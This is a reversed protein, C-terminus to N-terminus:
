SSATSIGHGTVKGKGYVEVYERRLEEMSETGLTICFGLAELNFFQDACKECMWWSALPKEDGYIRYDVSGEEPHMVRSFHACLAGVKIVAKCSCCKRSRKTDLTTYDEPAFYYWEDDDGCSCSLSM